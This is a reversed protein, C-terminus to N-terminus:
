RPLGGCRFSPFSWIQIFVGSTIPRLTATQSQGYVRKSGWGSPKSILLDSPGKGLVLAASGRQLSPVVWSRGAQQHVVDLAHQGDLSSGVSRSPFPPLGQSGFTDGAIGASQYSIVQEVPSWRGKIELDGLHAGWGLTSADTIVTAVPPPISFPREQSLNGDVSWWQLDATTDRSINISEALDGRHQFWQRRLCWQLARMHWCAHTVLLICSAFLGLLRLVKLVPVVSGERFMSILAQIDQIWQPPPFARSLTTDLVTGIFLLRQSPELHSKPVNISFGLSFLLQTTMQLHHLELKPSKAKILWDDLYPFVAIGKRRLNAAVVAMVKTFVRPASTLGFPLVAFQYHQSGVVFGLYKRRSKLIPIHFYADQLDVCVMWDEKNLAM